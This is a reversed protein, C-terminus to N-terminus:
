FKGNKSCIVYVNINAKLVCICLICFILKCCRNFVVSINKLVFILWQFIELSGIKIEVTHLKKSVLSVDCWVLLSAKFRTIHFTQDSQINISNRQLNLIFWLSWEHNTDPHMSLLSPTRKEPLYLSLGTSTELMVTGNRCNREIAYDGQEQCPQIQAQCHQSHIVNSHQRKCPLRLKVNSIVTSQRHKVQKNRLSVHSKIHKIYSHRHCSWRCVYVTCVHKNCHRQIFTQECPRQKQEQLLKPVM